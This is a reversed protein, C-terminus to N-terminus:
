SAEPRMLRAPVFVKGEMLRRASRSMVAKVIDWSGDRAEVEAGATMTGSPHGFTIRTRPSGIIQQAVTGPIAAATALAIAGTGTMAHHLKGMSVIRANLDISSQEVVKGNSATYRCPKSLFSLKPTHLRVASAQDESAALGMRVAAHARVAELRALLAMNSNIDKQMEDGRLGIQEAFVFVTPNGANIMTVDLTGVGPVDIVDSAHGTPFLDGGAADDAPSLFEVVIEAAPFTVGDLEFDGDEVVGDLVPIHAIIRANLERHRMRIITTGRQAVEVMKQMIAFPGVASTLNGCNGSWDILPRDISVQGFSYDIDCDPLSSLEVIIVKSTSSSAGGMGDIQQGYPDPSGLVRLLLKDRLVPDAPLDDKRFFVGKSTGGRMYVAPIAIQNM